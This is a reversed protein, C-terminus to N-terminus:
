PSANYYPHNTPLSTRLGWKWALYGELIQRNTTSLVNDYYLVEHVVGTFRAGLDAYTGIYAGQNGPVIGRSATATNTALTGNGIEEIFLSTSSSANGSFTFYFIVLQNSYIPLQALQDQGGVTNIQVTNSTYGNIRFTIGRSDPGLQFMTNWASPSTFNVVYAVSGNYNLPMQSFSFYNSTGNFTLGRTTSNYTASGSFSRGAPTKDAWTTISTGNIPATGSNLPDAGDLWVQAGTISLPTFSPGVYIM